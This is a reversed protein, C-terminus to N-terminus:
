GCHHRPARHTSFRWRWGSEFFLWAECKKNQRRAIRCILFSKDVTSVAMFYVSDIFHTKEANPVIKRQDDETLPAPKEGPPRRLGLSKIVSGLQVLLWFIHKKLHYWRGPVPYMGNNNTSDKNGSLLWKAMFAALATVGVAIFMSMKGHLAGLSDDRTLGQQTYARARRCFTNYVPCFASIPESTRGILLLWHKM